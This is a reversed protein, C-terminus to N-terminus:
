NQPFSTEQIGKTFGSLSMTLEVKSEPSIIPVITLKAERGRRFAAVDESTLGIRSYCGVTNCFAFPYKRSNSGDISLTLQEQLSTELPVVITAGAEARGGEPLRFLSFEVVPQGNEDKVLQYLQCPDNGDETRICRLEFADFQAKLYPEGVKTETDADADQGLDFTEDIESTEPEAPETTDTSQAYLPAAFSVCLISALGLQRADNWTIM